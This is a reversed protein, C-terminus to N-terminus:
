SWAAVLCPRVAFEAFSVDACRRPGCKFAVCRALRASGLGAVMGAVRRSWYSVLALSHRSCDLAPGCWVTVWFSCECAGGAGALCGGAQVSRSSDQGRRLCISLFPM